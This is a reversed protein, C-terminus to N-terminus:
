RFNDTENARIESHRIQGGLASTWVTLGSVLLALVLLAVGFRPALPKGRFLVLGVLAAIGLVLCAALAVSGATQHQALLNDAFDPLARVMGAAPGGTLYLPVSAMAGALFLGLACKQVERASRGLGVALLGLGFVGAMAPVHCLVLHLRAAIFPNM